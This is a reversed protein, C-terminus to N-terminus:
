DCVNNEIIRDLETDLYVVEGCWRHFYKVRDHFLLDVSVSRGRFLTQLMELNLSLSHSTKFVEWVFLQDSDTWFAGFIQFLSRESRRLMTVASILEFSSISSAFAFCDWHSFFKVATFRGSRIRKCRSRSIFGWNRLSTISTWKWRGIFSSHQFYLANETSSFWSSTSFCVHLWTPTGWQPHNCIWEQILGFSHRGVCWTLRGSHLHDWQSLPLIGCTTNVLWGSFNQSNHVWLQDFMQWSVGSHFMCSSRWM